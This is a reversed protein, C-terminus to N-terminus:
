TRFSEPARLGHEDLVAVLQRLHQLHVVAQLVQAADEHDIGRFVVVDDIVRTELHAREILNFPSAPGHLPRSSPHASAAAATRGSSVAVRM